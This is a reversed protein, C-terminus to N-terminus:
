DELCPYREAFHSPWALFQNSLGHGWNSLLRWCYLAQIFSSIVHLRWGIPVIRLQLRFQSSDATVLRFLFSVQYSTGFEISNLGCWILRHIWFVTRFRWLLYAQRAPFHGCSLFFFFWAGIVAVLYWVCKQFTRFSLFFVRCVGHYIRVSVLVVQAALTQCPPM